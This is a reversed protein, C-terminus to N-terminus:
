YCFRKWSKHIFSHFTKLYSKCNEHCPCHLISDQPINHWRRLPPPPMNMWFTIVCRGSLMADSRQLLCCNDFNNMNFSFVYTENLCLKHTWVDRACSSKPIHTHKHAHLSLDMGLISDRSTSAPAAVSCAWRERNTSCCVTSSIAAPCRNHLSISLGKGSHVGGGAQWSNWVARSNRECKPKRDRSATLTLQQCKCITNKNSM